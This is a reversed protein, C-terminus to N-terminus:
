DWDVKDCISDLWDEQKETLELETGAEEAVILQVQLSKVFSLEKDTLYDESELCFEIKDVLTMDSM